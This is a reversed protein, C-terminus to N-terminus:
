SAGVAAFVRTGDDLILGTWTYLQINQTARSVDPEPGGLDISVPDRLPLDWLGDPVRVREGAHPGGALLAVMDPVDYFDEVRM